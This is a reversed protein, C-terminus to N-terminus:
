ALAGEFDEITGIASDLINVKDNIYSEIQQTITGYAYTFRLKKGNYAGLGSILTSAVIIDELKIEHVITSGDMVYIDWLVNNTPINPPTAMGNSISVEVTEFSISETSSKSILLWNNLKQNWIYTAIGAGANIDAIADEVTVKMGNRKVEINNRDLITDVTQDANEHIINM